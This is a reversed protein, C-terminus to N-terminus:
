EVVSFGTLKRTSPITIPGEKSILQQVFTTDVTAQVVDTKTSDLTSVTLLLGAVVAFLIIFSKVKM